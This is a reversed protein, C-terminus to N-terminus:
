QTMVFCINCRQRHISMLPDHEYDSKDNREEYRQYHDGPKHNPHTFTPKHRKSKVPNHEANPQQRQERAPHHSQNGISLSTMSGSRWLATILLSTREAILAM